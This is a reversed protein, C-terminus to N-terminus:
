RSRTKRNRLMWAGGGVCGMALFAMTSPEPIPTFPTFYGLQSASLATDSLRFDDFMGYINSAINVTSLTTPLSRSTIGSEAFTFVLEANIYIKVSLSDKVYALHTWSGQELTIGTSFTRTGDPQGLANFSGQIIGTNSYSLEFRSPGGGAESALSWLAGGVIVTNGDTTISSFGERNVWGEMTFQNSNASLNIGTANTVGGTTTANFRTRGSKDVGNLTPYVLNSPLAPNSPPHVASFPYGSNASVDRNFNVTRGNGSQDLYSKTTNQQDFNYEILTASQLSHAALCLFVIRLPNLNM